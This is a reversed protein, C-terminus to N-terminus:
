GMTRQALSALVSGIERALAEPASTEVLILGHRGALDVVGGSATAIVPIGLALAERVVLPAGEHRGDMLSRSPHVFLDAAAMREALDAHSLNGTLCLDVHADRALRRLRSAEPGDGAVVLRPRLGIPLRALALVLIDFGKIPVLRGAAMVTLGSMGLRDRASQRERPSWPRFVSADVPAPEVSARAGWTEPAAGCLSCFRERLDRSVFRLEVGTRCIERALSAGWPLRELLFVDGGHAYARHRLRPAVACVALTSPLLWHSEVADWGGAKRAVLATLRATFGLAEL